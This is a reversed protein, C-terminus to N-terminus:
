TKMPAFVCCLSVRKVEEPTSPTTKGQYRLYQMVSDVKWQPLNIETTKVKSGRGRKGSTQSWSRVQGDQTGAAVAEIYNMRFLKLMDCVTYEQRTAARVNHELGLRRCVTSTIYSSITCPAHSYEGKKPYLGTLFHLAKTTHQGGIAWYTQQQLESTTMNVVDCDAHTPMLLISVNDECFNLAMSDKVKEYNTMDIDRSRFAVPPLKINRVDILVKKGRNAYVEVVRDYPSDQSNNVGGKVRQDVVITCDGHDVDFDNDSESQVVVPTDSESDTDPEKRKLKSKPKANPKRKKAPPKGKAPKTREQSAGANGHKPFSVTGSSSMSANSTTSKTDSAPPRSENTPSSMPMRRRAAVPTRATSEEGSSDPKGGDSETPYGAQEDEDEDSGVTRSPPANRQLDAMNIMPDTCMINLARVAAGLDHTHALLSHVYSLAQTQRPFAQGTEKDKFGIRGLDLDVLVQKDKNRAPEAFLLRIRIHAQELAVFSLVPLLCPMRSNKM